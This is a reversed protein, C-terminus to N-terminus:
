GLRQVDVANGTSQLPKNASSLFVMLVLGYSPFWHLPRM